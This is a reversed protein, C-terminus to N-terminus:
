RCVQRRGSRSTYLGTDRDFSRYKAACYQYWQATWAAPNGRRIVPDIPTPVVVRPRYERYPLTRPAYVWPQRWGYTAYAHHPDLAWPWDHHGHWHHGGGYWRPQVPAVTVRAPVDIVGERLDAARVTGGHAGALLALALALSARSVMVLRGLRARVAEASPGLM